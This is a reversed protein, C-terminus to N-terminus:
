SQPFDEHLRNDSLTLSDYVQTKLIEWENYQENYAMNVTQFNGGAYWREPETKYAYDYDIEVAFSAVVGEEADLRKLSDKDVDISNLRFLYDKNHADMKAVLEDIYREDVGTIQEPDWDNIAQLYSRYFTAFQDALYGILQRDSVDAPALSVLDPNRQEVALLYQSQLNQTPATGATFEETYEDCQVQVKMGAFAPSITLRGGAPEIDVQTGDVSVQLNHESGALEIVMVPREGAYDVEVMQTACYSYVSHGGLDYATGYQDYAAQLEHSGPALSVPINVVRGQGDDSGDLVGSYANGYLANAPEVLADGQLDSMHLAPEGDVLLTLQPLDTRLDVVMPYVIVRYPNHLSFGETRVLEFCNYEEQYGAALPDGMSLLHDQLRLLTKEGRLEQAFREIDSDQLQLGAGGDMLRAMTATDGLRIANTLDEVMRSPSNRISMWVTLGVIALILVSALAVFLWLRKPSTRAVVEGLPGSRPEEQEPQPAPFLEDVEEPPLERYQVEVPEEESGPVPPRYLPRAANQAPQRPPEQSPPSAPRQPEFVRVPQSPGEGTQAAARAAAPTPAPEELVPLKKGCHPCFQGSAPLEGGCWPCYKM